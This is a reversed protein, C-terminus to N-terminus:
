GQPTEVVVSPVLSLCYTVRQQDRSFRENLQALLHDITIARKFYEKPDETFTIETERGGVVNISKDIM